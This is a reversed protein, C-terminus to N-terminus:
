GARPSSAVPVNRHRDILARAMTQARKAGDLDGQAAQAIAGNMLTHWCLAFEERDRLGAEVALAFVISRVSRLGALCAQRIPPQRDGTELLINIFVDGEFNDTAFWESLLDFIVLLQEEPTGGRRKAENELWGHVWVQERQALFALVLHEKSPFHRYFTARGVDAREVLEDVSVSHIGRHAFLDSACDLIRQRAVSGQHRDTEGM